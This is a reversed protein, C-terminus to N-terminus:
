LPLSGATQCLDQEQLPDSPRPDSPWVVAHFHGRPATQGEMLVQQLWRSGLTFLSLGVAALGALGGAWSLTADGGGVELAWLTALAVAALWRAVREPDSMRNRDLQWGGSKLRKFGQEIWSRWAYWGVEAAGSALDTLVLWPEAHGAEWCALLTCRLKSGGPYALGAGKWRRGAAAAFQRMPYGKHWGDPRFKGQTKVRMLPHWGLATIARFLTPSELGRDTLVLVEWDAGLRDRLAGLLPEWRANWSGAAHIPQVHWAVPIACSRYLVSITLVLFRGALDTPDLALALRRDTSGATAWRLLPGFCTTHDFDQRHQGAKVAAPQYLERLRQRVTNLALGLRIALQLAVASVAACRALAIGFSATALWRRQAEPLEPFHTALRDHWQYLAQDHPM